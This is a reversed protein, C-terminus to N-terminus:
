QMDKPWLRMVDDSAFRVNRWTTGSAGHLTLLDLTLSGGPWETVPVEEYDKSDDRQGVAKLQGKAAARVLMGVAEMPTIKPRKM